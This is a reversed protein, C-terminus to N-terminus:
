ILEMPLARMVISKQKFRHELDQKYKRWWVRNLRTLMVEIVVIDDHIVRRNSRWRGKAPANLFATVGGFKATLEGQVDGFLRYPRAQGRDDLVPLLIQVCIMATM